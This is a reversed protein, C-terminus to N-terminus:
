RWPPLIGRPRRTRPASDGPDTTHQPNRDRGTRLERSLPSVPLRAPSLIWHAWLGQPNLEGRECWGQRGRDRVFFPTLRQFYVDLIQLCARAADGDLRGRVAYLQRPVGRVVGDPALG